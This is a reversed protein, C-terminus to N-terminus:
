KIYWYLKRNTKINTKERHDSCVRSCISRSFTSCTLIINYHWCVSTKSFRKSYYRYWLMFKIEVWKVALFWFLLPVPIKSLSSWCLSEPLTIADFHEEYLMAKTFSSRGQTGSAKDHGTEPKPWTKFLSVRSFGRSWLAMGKIAGLWNCGLTCWFMWFRSTKSIPEKSIDFTEFARIPNCDCYARARSAVRRQGFFASSKDAQPRRLEEDCAFFVEPVWPLSSWILTGKKSSLFKIRITVQISQSFLRFFLFPNTWLGM